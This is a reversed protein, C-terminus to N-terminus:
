LRYGCMWNKSVLEIIKDDNLITDSVLFLKIENDRRIKQVRYTDVRMVPLKIEETAYQNYGSFDYYRPEDQLPYKKVEHQSNYKFYELKGDCIGGLYIVKDVARFAAILKRMPTGHNPNMWNDYWYSQPYWKGTTHCFIDSSAHTDIIEKVTNLGGFSEILKEPTNINLQEIINM